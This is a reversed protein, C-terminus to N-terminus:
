LIFYFFDAYSKLYSLIDMQKEKPRNIPVKFKNGKASLATDEKVASQSCFGYLVHTLSDM